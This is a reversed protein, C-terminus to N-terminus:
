EEYHHLVTYKEMSKDTHLFTNRQMGSRRGPWASACRQSRERAICRRPRVPEGSCCAVNRTQKRQTVRESDRAGWLMLVQTAVTQQETEKGRGRQQIRDAAETSRQRVDNMCSRGGQHSSQRPGDTMVVVPGSLAAKLTTGGCETQRTYTQRWRHSDGDM